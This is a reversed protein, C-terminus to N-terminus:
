HHSRGTPGPGRNERARRGTCSGTTSLVARGCHPGSTRSTHNQRSCRRLVRRELRHDVAQFDSQASESLQTTWNAAEASVLGVVAPSSNALWDSLSGSRAYGAAARLLQDTVEQEVASFESLAPNTLMRRLAANGLTRRATVPSWRFTDYAAGAREVMWADLRRHAPDAVARFRASLSRRHDDTLLVPTEPAEDILRDLVHRSLRRHVLVSM